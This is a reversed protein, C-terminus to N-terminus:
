ARQKPLSAGEARVEARLGVDKAIRAWVVGEDRMRRAFEEPTGGM